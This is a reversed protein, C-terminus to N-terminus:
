KSNIIANRMLVIDIIDITKDENIDGRAMEEETLEVSMVINARAIVVDTIDLTGDNNIDGVVIVPKETNTDTETDTETDDTDIETTDVIIETDTETDTETDSESETDTETDIETDTNVEGTYEAIDKIIYETSVGEAILDTFLNDAYSDPECYITVPYIDNDFTTPDISTVNAPIVVTQLDQALGIHEVKEVTDSLVLTTIRSDYLSAGLVTKVGDPVVLTDGKYEEANYLIGNIVVVPNEKIKAELWPTQRFAWKEITTVSSPIIIEECDYASFAGERITTVGESIIIKKTHIPVYINEVASVKYGDVEAPVTFEEVVDRNIDLGFLTVTGDELIEYGWGEDEYMVLNGDIIPESASVAFTSFMTVLMALSCIVSLLRKANKMSFTEKKKTKANKM